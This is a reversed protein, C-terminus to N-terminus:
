EPSLPILISFHTGKGYESTIEFTAHILDALKKSVHLGLGTGERKKGPISLQHFAQFLKELDVSAIGIGSDIVEIVAIDSTKLKKRILTICVGGEDTFKIANNIINILIQTLVRKDSYLTMKEKPFQTTFTINKEEALPCLSTVIDQIFEQCAIEEISLAVKGSDIKALDLLDNILSLLHKASNQVIKLQTEQETNIDGAMKMLLTGSFGLIANLPTRLEHSMTAFFRDRALNANELEINKNRLQDELQKQESIDRATTSAGIVNSHANKIPSITVSVPIIHGQKDVRLTESYKVAEGAAIKHHINSFENKLEPPYIFSIHKGVAETSTYHYLQEAGKNWSFVIGNLDKGIIADDSFQVIASLMAKADEIKKRESIDRIAALALLGEETELPSLSIEVPFENGNKHKGFLELGVGMPRIRPQDFYHHRHQEHRHLFRDPILLEVHQGILEDRTHGFLKEALANVLIINGEQNIIVLCDPTAELIARFKAETKKRLSIDRIAALAFQGEETYLPSLSIEIPFETGDQKLGFLELGTGMPRVRPNTFYSTRFNPHQHRFRSPMLCEIKKELLTVRKYGFLTETQRNILVIKGQEDVIVLADPMAEVLDSVHTFYSVSM